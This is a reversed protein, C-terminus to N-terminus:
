VNLDFGLGYGHIYSMELWHGMEIGRIGGTVILFGTFKQYKKPPTPPFYPFSANTQFPNM